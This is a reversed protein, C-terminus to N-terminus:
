PEGSYKMFTLCATSTPHPNNKIIQALDKSSKQMNADIEYTGDSIAAQSNIVLRKLINEAM